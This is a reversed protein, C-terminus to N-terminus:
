THSKQLSPRPRLVTILLTPVAIGALLESQWDWDQEIRAERAMTPATAVRQPWNPAARREAIGEVWVAISQGDGSKVEWREAVRDMRRQERRLNGSADPWPRSIIRSIAPAARAEAEPPKRALSRIRTVLPRDEM